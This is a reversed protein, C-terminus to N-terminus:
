SQDAMAFKELDLTRSLTGSPLLSVRIEPPVRIEKCCSWSDCLCLVIHQTLQFAAFHLVFTCYVKYIVKLTMWPWWFRCSEILWTVNGTVPRLDTSVIQIDQVMESINSSECHTHSGTVSFLSEPEICCNCFHDTCGATLAELEM